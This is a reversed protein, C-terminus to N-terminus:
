CPYSFKGVRRGRAMLGFALMSYVWYPRMYGLLRLIRKM